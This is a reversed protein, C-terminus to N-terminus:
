GSCWHIVRDFSSMPTDMRRAVKPNPALAGEVKADSVKARCWKVLTGILQFAEIVTQPEGPFDPVDGLKLAHAARWLPELPWFLCVDPGEGM